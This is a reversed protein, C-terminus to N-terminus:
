QALKEYVCCAQMNEIIQEQAIEKEYPYIMRGSVTIKVPGGSLNVYVTLRETDTFREYSYVGGRYALGKYFANALMPLSQRLAICRRYVELIEGDEEGWKFTQRNFPDRDGEAGAEDGYYICPMGPLTMQMLVALGLLTKARRRDEFSLRAHALEDNPMGKHPDGALMNLIRPTDHSGLLNMQLDSAAKPYHRYLMRVTFFLYEADGTVLYSILANKLPYNMVADLQGGTFYHRRASYATKNSADEWVEGFVPARADIKKVRAHVDDLMVDPLEDAVDLRWGAVGMKTYKALVGNEGAIFDRVAPLGSNLKPLIDIGWWCEYSEPYHKFYYWDFYPSERSEYAGLSPYSGYKNFYLSDSGTHNFVGDLIVGIGYARCKELLYALAEEGGLLEDVTMYDGTDYRHNSAAKFIPNLYILTVGLSHLYDLKDAVGYLTGGFFHNNKLPKGPRGPYESVQAYWDEEM